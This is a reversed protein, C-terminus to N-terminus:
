IPNQEELEDVKKKLNTVGEALSKKSTAEIHVTEKIATPDDFWLKYNDNIIFRKIFSCKQCTLLVM